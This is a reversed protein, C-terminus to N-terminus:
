SESSATVCLELVHETPWKQGLYLRPLESPNLLFLPSIRMIFDTGYVICVTDQTYMRKQWECWLFTSASTISAPLIMKHSCTM